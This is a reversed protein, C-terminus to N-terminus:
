STANSIVGISLPTLPAVSDNRARLQNLKKALRILQNEDLAYAALHRLEACSQAAAVLQPFDAPPRRLWALNEFLNSM